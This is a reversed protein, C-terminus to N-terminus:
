LLRARVSGVHLLVRVVGCGWNRMYRASFCLVRFTYELVIAVLFLAAGVGSLSKGCLRPSSGGSTAADPM